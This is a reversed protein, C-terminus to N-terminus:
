RRLAQLLPTVRLGHQAHLGLQKAAEQMAEPLLGAVQVGLLAVPSQM